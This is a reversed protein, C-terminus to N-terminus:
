GYSPKGSFKDDRRYKAVWSNIDKRLQLLVPVGVLRAKLRDISVTWCPMSCVCASGCVTGTHTVGPQAMGISATLSAAVTLGKVNLARRLSGRRGAAETRSSVAKVSDEKAPDDKDLALVTNVKGLIASQM